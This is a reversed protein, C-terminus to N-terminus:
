QRMAAVLLLLAVFLLTFSALSLGTAAVRRVLTIAAVGALGVLACGVIHVAELRWATAGRGLQEGVSIANEAASWAVITAVAALLMRTDGVALFLGSLVVSLFVGGTGLKVLNYSGHGRIPLVAAVVLPLGLLGPLFRLTASLTESESVFVAVAAAVVGGGLIGLVIGPVRYGRRHLATGGGVALLGGGQIALATLVAEDGGLTLVVGAALAVAVAASPVTPRLDARRVTM